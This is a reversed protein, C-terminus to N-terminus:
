SIACIDNCEAKSSATGDGKSKKNNIDKAQIAAEEAKRVTLVDRVEQLSDLNTKSTPALSVAALLPFLILWM